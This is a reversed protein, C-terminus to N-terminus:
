HSGVYLYVYSYLSLSLFRSLFFFSPFLSSNCTPLAVQLIPCMLAWMMVGEASPLEFRDKRSVVAVAVDLVGLPIVDEDSAQVLLMPVAALVGKAQACIHLAASYEYSVM